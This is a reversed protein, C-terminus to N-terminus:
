TGTQLHLRRSYTRNERSSGLVWCSSQLPLEDGADVDEVGAAPIDEVELQEKEVGRWPREFLGPGNVACDVVGVVINSLGKAEEM